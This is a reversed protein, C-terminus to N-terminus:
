DNFYAFYIVAIAMAALLIEKYYTRTAVVVAEPIDYVAPKLRIEEAIGDRLLPSVSEYGIASLTVATGSLVPTEFLGDANTTTGGVLSGTTMNYVAVNVGPIPLGTSDDVVLGTAIM